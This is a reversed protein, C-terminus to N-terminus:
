ISEGDGTPNENDDNEGDTHPNAPVSNIMSLVLWLAARSATSRLTTSTSRASRTMKTRERVQDGEPKTFAPYLFRHLPDQTCEAEQIEQRDNSGTTQLDNGGRVSGQSDVINTPSAAGRSTPQPHM